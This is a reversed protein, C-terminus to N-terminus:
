GGLRYFPMPYSDAVPILAAALRAVMQHASAPIPELLQRGVPAVKEYRPGGPSQLFKTFEQRDFRASMRFPLALAEDPAQGSRRHASLRDALREDTDFGLFFLTRLRDKDGHKARTAADVRRAAVRVLDLAAWAHTRPALRALLDGGAEEDILDTDWWRFREPTARAEGSWAVVLQVRLIADLTAETPGAAQTEVDVTPM